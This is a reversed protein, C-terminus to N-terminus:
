SLYSHIEEVLFIRLWLQTRTVVARHAEQDHSDAPEINPAYSKHRSRGPAVFTYPIVSTPAGDLRRVEVALNNLISNTLNGYIVFPLTYCM